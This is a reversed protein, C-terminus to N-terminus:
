WNLNYSSSRGKSPNKKLFGKDLLESIERFATARSIKAMSVYKRTTLGGQFGQKGANLLKNVIKIQRSNLNAQNHKQWFRSKALVNEILKEANTVAREHCGLYWKLWETVNLEGKQSKELIRYYEKREEMIQSSLSYYRRNLNEDQALAMDTLARAIRGNGDEFPHITVFYFHALGSRIIGEEKNLTTKWWLLFQKIEAEINKGPPAEYHIKEKGIPGSLVRMPENRKRWKGTQIPRLGVQGTPFLAAQWHKLRTTTLPQEFQQTADLLVEVLGDISRNSPPMGASPLGLHQAVSSRVSEKNLQEGEIASTKLAEETLINAQAEQNLEFGLNSVKSLLKGQALRASSIM